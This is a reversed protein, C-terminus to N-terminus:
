EREAKVRANQWVSRKDYRGDNLARGKDKDVALEVSYESFVSTMLAVLEIAVIFDICMWQYVRIELALEICAYCHPM